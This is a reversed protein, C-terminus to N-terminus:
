TYNVKQIKFRLREYQIMPDDYSNVPQDGWSAKKKGSKSFSITNIHHSLFVNM